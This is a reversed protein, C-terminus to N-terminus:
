TIQAGRKRSFFQKQDISSLFFTKQSACDKSLLILRDTPLPTPASSLVWLLLSRPLLVALQPFATGGQVSEERHLGSGARVESGHPSGEPIAEEGWTSPARSQRPSEGSALCGEPPQVPQYTEGPEM